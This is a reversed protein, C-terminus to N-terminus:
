RSRELYGIFEDTADRARPSDSLQYGNLRAWEQAMQRLIRKTQERLRQQSQIAKQHFDISGTSANLAPIAVKQTPSRHPEPSPLYLARLDPQQRMLQDVEQEAQRVFERRRARLRVEIEQEVRQLRAELEARLAQERARWREDLENLQRQLTKYQESDPPRQALKALLAFREKGHQEFAERWESQWQERIANLDYEAQLEARWRKELAPLPDLRTQLLRERV